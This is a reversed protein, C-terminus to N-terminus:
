RAFVKDADTGTRLSSSVVSIRGGDPVDAHRFLKAVIQM